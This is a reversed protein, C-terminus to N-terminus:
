GVHDASWRALLEALPTVRTLTEAPSDDQNYSPRHRRGHVATAIAHAGIWSYKAVACAAIGARVKDSSAHWGGDELGRLYGDAVAEAIGPLLAVDLLGDTVSDVILNAPDEGISGEGVFAWDLLVSAGSADEILNAPWVDLHCLTHPLAEVVALVRMRSEWLRRLAARVPAPWVAAVPDDWDADTVDVNAGPGSSLYQALWRRSLWPLEVPSPVRGVWRAQGAGLEYGFRGLREVSLEFGSRGDVDELWLEIEGNDRTVATDLRPARIGADHYAAYAFGTEYAYVERRWYNYHDPADSTGWASAPRTSAPGQAGQAGQAGPTGPAGSAGPAPPRAIKLIRSRVTGDAAEQGVRFIGGTAANGENHRLPIWTAAV